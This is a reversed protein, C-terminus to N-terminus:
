KLLNFTLSPNKSITPKTSVGIFCDNVAIAMKKKKKKVKTIFHLLHLLYVFLSSVLKKM